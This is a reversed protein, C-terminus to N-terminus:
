AQDNQLALLIITKQREIGNIISKYEVKQFPWAVTRGLRRLGASQLGKNLKTLIESIKKLPDELLKLISRWSDDEDLDCAQDNLTELVGRLSSVEAFLDRQEQPADRTDRLFKLTTQTIQIIAIISAAVGLEAM